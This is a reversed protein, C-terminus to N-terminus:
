NILLFEPVKPISHSINKKHDKTKPWWMVGMSTYIAIMKDTIQYQRKRSKLYDRKQYCLYATGMTLIAFSKESVMEQIKLFIDDPIRYLLSTEDFKQALKILTCDVKKLGMIKIKPVSSKSLCTLLPNKETFDTLSYKLVGNFSVPRPESITRIASQGRTEHSAISFEVSDFSYGCTKLQLDFIADIWPCPLGIIIENPLNEQIYICRKPPTILLNIDLRRVHGSSRTSDLSTSCSRSLYVVDTMSTHSISISLREREKRSFTGCFACTYM